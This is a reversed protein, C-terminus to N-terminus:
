HVLRVEEGAGAGKMQFPLILRRGQRCPPLVFIESAILLVLSPIPPQECRKEACAGEFESLISPIDTFLDPDAYGVCSKTGQRM